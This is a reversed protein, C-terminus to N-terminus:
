SLIRWLLRISVFFEKKGGQKEISWFSLPIDKVQESIKQFM